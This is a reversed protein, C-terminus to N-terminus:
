RGLRVRRRPGTLRPRQRALEPDAQRFAAQHQAQEVLYDALSRAIPLDCLGEVFLFAGQPELEVFVVEGDPTLALDFVGMALGLSRLVTHLAARLPAGPQYRHFPVSLDVRWDLERSEILAAFCHDGFVTIRLHRDGPVCAQYIAPSLALVDDRALLEPSVVATLALEGPTRIPKIVARPHAACFGRIRAPDHSVLTPPIRIGARRAARLPILPNGALETAVPDSIWAGGFETILEGQLAAACSRDIDDTYAPDVADSLVQHRPLRRLWLADLAAIEVPEGTADRLVGPEAGDGSWSLQGHGAIESGSLIRCRAAHRQEISRQVAIAHLDDRLALIGITVTM